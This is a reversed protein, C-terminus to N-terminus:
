SSAASALRAPQPRVAAGDILADWLVMIREPALQRAVVEPARALRARLDPDAALRDMAAALGAVDGVPVLLGNVGDVVMEGPGYLCDFSIIPLGSCTAEAVVNSFGEYRSSVVVADGAGLWESPDRTVGGLRVRHSLGLMHIRDSLADREPGGGFITLEAPQAMAAMADLLLDFGKQRDLRGVAVFRCLTAAPPPQFAVPLCVNPVVVTRKRSWLPLDGRAGATQTAIGAALCSLGRQMHRWFRPAQLLPNNRESIVVPVGTGLAALLTLCNVKILFSLIVQPQVQRILRRIAALRRLQLLRDQPGAQSLVHLTVGDPYPFFSGAAPMFMGAVHVEDGLALRHAAVAAMVKEAGGTGFGGQILLVRM